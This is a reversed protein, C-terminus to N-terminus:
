KGAEPASAAPSVVAPRSQESIQKYDVPPLVASMGACIACYLLGGLLMLAGM